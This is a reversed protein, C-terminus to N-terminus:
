LVREGAVFSAVVGDRTQDLIGAFLGDGEPVPIVMFDALKGPGLSGVRDGLNLAQAGGLTAAKLIWAALAERDESELSFFVSRMEDWLNMSGGWAVGLTALAWPLDEQFIKIWPIDGVQLTQFARPSFIRFSETNELIAADTPGLHLCGVLGPKARLLGIEQLYQVPTMRHPPPVKESWGAEKFLIASIEGMSDYFFEMESFSLAAILHLPVGQNVAHDALIKLMNKSLTYASFPAYGATVRPHKGHLIEDVLALAQEFEEQARVRQINEIDVLCVVRLGSNEYRNIVAPYRCRDGLTTVGHTKQINLGKEVAEQQEPIAMGTKFRSLNVLWPMLLMRGDNMKFSDNLSSPYNSLSLDSHANVLGPLLCHGSFSEVSAEPNEKQLVEPAGLSQILGEQVLMAGPSLVEGEMTILHDATFIKM